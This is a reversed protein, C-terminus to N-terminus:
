PKSATPQTLRVPDHKCIYTLINFQNIEGVGAANNM